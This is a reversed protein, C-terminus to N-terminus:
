KKSILQKIHYVRPIFDKDGCIWVEAFLGSQKPNKFIGYIRYKKTIDDSYGLWLYGNKVLSENSKGFSDLVDIMFEKFSSDVNNLFLTGNKHSAVLPKTRIVNPITNIKRLKEIYSIDRFMSDNMSITEM